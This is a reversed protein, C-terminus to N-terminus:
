FFGRRRVRLNNQVHAVDRLEALDEARRKDDRNRVTGNLTVEGGEVIVEIDSADLRRDNDLRETVVTWLVRDSSRRRGGGFWSSLGRDRWSREEGRAPEYRDDFDARHPARADARWDEDYRAAPRRGDWRDDMPERRYGRREVPDYGYDESFDAQGYGSGDADAEVRYGTRHRPDYRYDSSYDAQGFDELDEDRRFERRADRASPRPRMDWHRM